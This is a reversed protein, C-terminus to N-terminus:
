VHEVVGKRGTLKRYRAIALDCFVPELEM